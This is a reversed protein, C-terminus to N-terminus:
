NPNRIQGPLTKSEQEPMKVYHEEPLRAKQLSLYLRRLQSIRKLRATVAKASMDVQNM